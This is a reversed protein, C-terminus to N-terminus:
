GLRRVEAGRVFKTAGVDHFLEGAVFNGVTSLDHSEVGERRHDDADALRNLV